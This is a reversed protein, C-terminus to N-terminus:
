RRPSRRDPPPAASFVGPGFLEVIKAVIKRLYAEARQPTRSHYRSVGAWFDGSRDIESRLIWASIAVNFCDDYILFHRIEEPPVAYQRALTPLWFTNIQAPGLDESGDANRSVTGRRGGEVALVAEIIPPPLAYMQAAAHICVAAVQNLMAPQQESPQRILTRGLDWRSWALEPAAYM